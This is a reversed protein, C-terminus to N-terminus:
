TAMLKTDRMKRGEVVLGNFRDMRGTHVVKFQFYNGSLNTSFRFTQNSASFTLTKLSTWEADESYRYYVTLTTAAEANSASVSIRRIRTYDVPDTMPLLKTILQSEVTHYDSDTVVYYDTGLAFYTWGNVVRGDSIGMTTRSWAGTDLNFIWTVGNNPAYPKYINFYLSNVLPVHLATTNKLTDETEDIFLNDIAYSIKEVSSGNTKYFGDYSLFYISDRVSIVSRKSITGSGTVYRVQWTASDEGVLAYLSRRKFILLTDALPIIAMIRDGDDGGIDIWNNQPYSYSNAMKSFYLRSPHRIDGSLFAHNKYICGIDCPPPPDNDWMLDEGLNSASIADHFKYTTSDGISLVTKDLGKLFRYAGTDPDYRYVRIQEVNSAGTALTVETVGYAATVPTGTAPSPNSECRGDWHTIKYKAYTYEEEDGAHGECTWTVGGDEVTAGITTPWTPEAATDGAVTCRYYYGNSTAPLIGTGATVSSSATYAYRGVSAISVPAIIGNQGWLKMGDGPVYVYNCKRGTLLHLKNDYVFYDKVITPQTTATSGIMPVQSPFSVSTSSGKYIRYFAGSTLSVFHYTASDSEFPVVRSIAAALRAQYYGIPIKRLEGQRGPIWNVIDEAGKGAYDASRVNTVIGSSFDDLRVQFTNHERM